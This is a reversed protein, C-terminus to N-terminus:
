FCIIKFGLIKEMWDPPNKGLFVGNRAGLKFHASKRAGHAASAALERNLLGAPAM